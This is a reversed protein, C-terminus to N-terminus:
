RTSRASVRISTANTTATSAASVQARSAHIPSLPSEARVSPSSMAPKTKRAPSKATIAPESTHRSEPEARYAVTVITAAASRRLAPLFAQTVHLTGIVNSEFMSRWEDPDGADVRDTGLAGGANNVLVDCAGIEAAAARVAARDTVDLVRARCAPGLAAVVDALPGPRRGCVVVHFGDAVLRAATAAGIGSGGGTVVATRTTM